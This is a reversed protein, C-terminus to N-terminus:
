KVPYDTGILSELVSQQWDRLEAEMKKALEPKSEIVNFQEEPDALIDFLERKADPGSGGHIVLKHQNDLWARPGSFDEERIDERHFNKFNRTAIGGM